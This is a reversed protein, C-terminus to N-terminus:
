EAIPGMAVLHGNRSSRYFTWMGPHAEPAHRFVGFPGWKSEVLIRGSPPVRLVIGSHKIIDDIRYIALDGDSADEVIRYGNERLILPVHPDQIGFQGGTFIWGHCNCVPHPEALRVLDSGERKVNSLFQQELLALLERRDTQPNFPRQGPQPPLVLADYRFLPIDRGRDTIAKLSQELALVFFTSPLGPVAGAQVASPSHSHSTPSAPFVM